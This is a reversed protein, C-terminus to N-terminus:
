AMISFACSNLRTGQRGTSSRATPFGTDPMMRSSGILQVMPPLFLPSPMLQDVPMRCTDPPVMSASDGLGPM